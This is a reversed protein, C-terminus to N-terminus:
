KLIESCAKKIIEYDFGRSILFTSLKHKIENPELNRKKLSEYKKKAVNYANEFSEEPSVRHNLVESIIDPNIGKKILESKLRRESWKKIKLKEEAFADAFNKDNLYNKESLESLVENILAMDYNKNWLKNRLEAVSHQRRGLLRFARQRIHHKKNEEIYFSFRDESIEDNKKLGSKLFVETALILFNDDDFCITVDNKGKKIIRTVRM